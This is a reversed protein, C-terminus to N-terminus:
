RAQQACFTEVKSRVSYLDHSVNRWYPEGDVRPLFDCALSATAVPLVAPNWAIAVTNGQGHSAIAIGGYGPLFTADSVGYPHHAQGLSVFTELDVIEVTDGGVLLLRRGDVDLRLRRPHSSFSPQELEKRSDGSGNMRHLVLGDGLTALTSGDSSLGVILLNKQPDDLVIRRVSRDPASVSRIGVSVKESAEERWLEAIFAGADSLLWRRSEHPSSPAFTTMHTRLWNGDNASFQMVRLNPGDERLLLTLNRGDSSMQPTDLLAHPDVESLVTQDGSSLAQLVLRTGQPTFAEKLLTQASIALVREDDGGNGADPLPSVTLASFEGPWPLRRKIHVIRDAKIEATFVPAYVSPDEEFYPSSPDFGLAKITPHYASQDPYPLEFVQNGVRVTRGDLSFGPRPTGGSVPEFTHITSEKELDWLAARGLQNFVLAYRANSSFIIDTITIHDILAKSLSAGGIIITDERAAEDILLRKPESLGDIEGPHSIGITELLEAEFDLYQRFIDESAPTIRIQRVPRDSGESWWKIDGYFSGTVITEEEHTFAASLVTDPHRYVSKPTASTVDWLIATRDDSATVAFRGDSSAAASKITANHGRLIAVTKQATMVRQLTSEAALHYRQELKGETATATAAIGLMLAQLPDTEAKEAALRTLGLIQESMATVLSQRAHYYYFAALGALIIAAGVGALTRYWLTRSLRLQRAAMELKEQRARLLDADEADQRRRSTAIFDTVIESLDHDGTVFTEAEHIKEGRLLLNEDKDQEEWQHAAFELWGRKRLQGIREHAIRQLRPWTHILTEHALRVHARGKVDEVVLLRAEVLHDFFVNRAATADDSILRLSRALIADGSADVRLLGALLADKGPEPLDIKEVVEDAYRALAGYFGGMRDLFSSDLRRGDSASAIQHLVFQLLPLSDPSRFAAEALQDVLTTGKGEDSFEYGAMIAPRSIIERLESLSPTTLRLTRESSGLRSLAPSHELIDLHDTRIAAVCWVEGSSVLREITEGLSQFATHDGTKPVVQELQDLILLVRTRGLHAKWKELQSVVTGAPDSSFQRAFGPQEHNQINLTDALVETLAEKPLPGSADFRVASILWRDGGPSGEVVDGLLGAMVLSSKGAGSRGHVLLFPYGAAAGATLQELAEERIRDRGFFVDRMSRPFPHLGPYPNGQWASRAAAHAPLGDFGIYSVADACNDVSIVTAGIQELAERDHPAIDQSNPGPLFLLIRSGSAAAQRLMPLSLSVKRAVHSVDGVSLDGVNVRGTAWVVAAPSGDAEGCRQSLRGDKELMHAFIAALQWSSGIAFDMSLEMRFVGHGVLGEIIGGPQRVFADYAADKGAFENGVTMMSRGLRPDLRRIRVIEAPGNTTPILVKVARKM